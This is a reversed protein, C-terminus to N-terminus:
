VRRSRPLTIKGIGGHPVKHRRAKDAAEACLEALEKAMDRSHRRQKAVAEWADM